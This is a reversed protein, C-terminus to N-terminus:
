GASLKAMMEKASRLDSTEFGESFKGYSSALVHHADGSRDQNARLRALSIATRLEWFLAGQSRAVELAKEFHQEAAIVSLYEGEHLLLEGKIRL